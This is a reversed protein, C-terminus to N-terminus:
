AAVKAAANIRDAIRALQLELDKEERLSDELLHLDEDRGLTRAFQCVTEYFGLEYHKIRRAVAILATNRVSEHAANQALDEAEDFLAYVVRCKIPSSESGARSLINRLRAARAESGQWHQDLITKLEEDTAVEVLFLSKPAIMEEASLLLRLQELYLAQLDPLKEMMLKM